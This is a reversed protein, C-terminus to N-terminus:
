HPDPPKSATEWAQDQKCSNFPAEELACRTSALEYACQVSRTHLKLALKTVKHTDLGLELLPKLLVPCLLALHAILYAQPLASPMAAGPACRSDSTLLTLLGCPTSHLYLFNERARVMSAGELEAKKRAERCREQKTKFATAKGPLSAKLALGQWAEEALAWRQLGELAKAERVRVKQDEPSLCLARQAAQLSLVSPFSAWACYTGPTSHPIPVTQTSSSGHQCSICGGKASESRGRLLLEFCCAMSQSRLAAAGTLQVKLKYFALCPLSRAAQLLIAAPKHRNSTESKWSGSQRKQQMQMMLCLPAQVPIIVVQM